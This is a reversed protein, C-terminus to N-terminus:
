KVKKTKPKLIEPGSIINFGNVLQEAQKKSEAKFQKTVIEGGSKKFKFVWTQM